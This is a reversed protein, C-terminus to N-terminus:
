DRRYMWSMGSLFKYDSSERICPHAYQTGNITMLDEGNNEALEYQAYINPYKEKLVDKNPMASFCNQNAWSSYESFNSEDLDLWMLDPMDNSNILLRTKEDYGDDPLTVFEFKVNFKECLYDWMANDDLLEPSFLTCSITVTEDGSKKSSCAVLSTLLIVMTMLLCVIRKM